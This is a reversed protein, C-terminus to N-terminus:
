GEDRHLHLLVVDLRSLNTDGSNWDRQRECGSERGVLDRWSSGANSSNTSPFRLSSRGDRYEKVELAALFLPNKM